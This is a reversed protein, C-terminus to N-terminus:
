HTRAGSRRTKSRAPRPSINASARDGMVSAGASAEFLLLVSGASMEGDHDSARLREASRAQIQQMEDLLRKYADALEGFGEQDVNLVQRTLHADEREFGGLAAASAAYDTVQRLGSDVLAEKVIKPIQRWASDTVRVRGRARYYHEIAGRRPRKKTLKILELNDLIRVHYSVNGLPARLEEALESPSAERDELVGLISVRLPHALAKVLRPDNIESIARM